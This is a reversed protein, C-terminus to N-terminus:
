IGDGYKVNASTTNKGIKSDRGIQLGSELEGVIVDVSKAGKGSSGHLVLTKEM